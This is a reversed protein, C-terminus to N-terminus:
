KSAEDTALREICAFAGALPGTERLEVRHTGANTLGELRTLLAKSEDISIMVSRCRELAYALVPLRRRQDWPGDILALDYHQDDVGAITLRKSWTYRHLRVVDPFRRVLREDYVTAWAEDDECTDIATAGGEILSLTSSGPGFELVRRAATEQVYGLVAAYDNFSWWHQEEPYLVFTRDITM